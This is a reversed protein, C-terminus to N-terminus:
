RRNGHEGPIWRWSEIETVLESDPGLRRMRIRRFGRENNLRYERHMVMYGGTFPPMGIAELAPGRRMPEPLPVRMMYVRDEVVRVAGRAFRLETGNDGPLEVSEAIPGLQEAAQGRVDSWQKGALHNVDVWVNAAKRYLDPNASRGDRTPAEADETREAPPSASLLREDPVGPLVPEGSSCALLLAALLAAPSTM